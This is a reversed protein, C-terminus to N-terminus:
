RANSVARAEIRQAAEFDRRASQLRNQNRATYARDLAVQAEAVELRARRASLAAARWAARDPSSLFQRGNPGNANLRALESISPRKGALLLAFRMNSDLVYM